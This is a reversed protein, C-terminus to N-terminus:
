RARDSAAACHNSRPQRPRPAARSQARRQPRQLEPLAACPRAFRRRDTARRVCHWRWPPPGHWTWPGPRPPGARLRRIRSHAVALRPAAARFRNLRLDQCQLQAASCEASSRARRVRRPRRVDFHPAPAHRPLEFERRLIMHREALAEAHIELRRPADGSRAEHHHGSLQRLSCRARTCNMSSKCTARDRSDRLRHARGPARRRRQDAGPLQGLEFLIQEGHAAIGAEVQNGGGFHRDGIQHAILDERGLRQRQFEHRVRRAKARLRARGALVRAAHNALVLELFHFQHVDHAGLIGVRRELFEGTMGLRHQLGQAQRVPHHRQAGAVDAEALAM